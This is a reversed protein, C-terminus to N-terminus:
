IAERAFHGNQVCGHHTICGTLISCVVCEINVNCLEHKGNVILEFLFFVVIRTINRQCLCVQSFTSPSVNDTNLM